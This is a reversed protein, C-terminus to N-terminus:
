VGSEKSIPSTQVKGRWCLFSENQTCRMAKIVAQDDFGPLQELARLLDTVGTAGNPIVVKPLGAADHFGWLVDIGWPGTDNTRINVESLEQWLINHLDGKPYTCTIGKGDMSVVYRAEPMLGATKSSRLIMMTLFAGLFVISIILLLM